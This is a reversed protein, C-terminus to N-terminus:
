PGAASRDVRPLSRLRCLLRRRVRERRRLQHVADGEGNQREQASLSGFHDTLCAPLRVPRAGLEAREAAAVQGPVRRRSSWWEPACRVRPPVARETRRGGDRAAAARRDGGCRRGGSGHRRRGRRLLVGAHAGVAGTVRRLRDVRRARGTAPGVRGSPPEAGVATVSQQGVGGAVRAGPAAGAARDPEQHDRSTRCGRGLPGVPTGGCGARARGSAGPRSRARDPQSPQHGSQGDGAPVRDAEDDVAVVVYAAGQDGHRDGRGGDLRRVRRTGFDSGAASVSRVSAAQVCASPARPPPRSTRRRGPCRPSRASWRRRGPDPREADLGPQQGAVAPPRQLRSWQLQAHGEVSCRTLREVELVVGVLLHQLDVAGHRHAGDPDAHIRRLRLALVALRHQAEGLDADAGARAPASM